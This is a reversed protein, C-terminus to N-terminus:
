EAVKPDVGYCDRRLQSLLLFLEEPYPDLTKAGDVVLSFREEGKGATFTVVGLDHIMSRRRADQPKQALVPQLLQRLKAVTTEDLPLTQEVRPQRAPIKICSATADQFSVQLQEMLMPGYAGRHDFVIDAEAAGSASPLGPQSVAPMTAPKPTTVKATKEPTQCALGFVSWFMLLRIPNTRM